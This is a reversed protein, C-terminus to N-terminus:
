RAVERAKERARMAEIEDPSMTAPAPVPVTEPRRRRRPKPAPTDAPPPPGIVGAAETAYCALATELAAVERALRDLDARAASLMATLTLHRDAPM